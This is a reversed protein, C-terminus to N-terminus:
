FKHSRCLGFPAKAPTVVDSKWSTTVAAEVLSLPRLVPKLTGPSLLPAFHLARLAAGLVKKWFPFTCPAILPPIRFACAPQPIVSSGAQAPAGEANLPLHYLWVCPSEGWGAWNATGYIAHVSRLSSGCWQTAWEGLVAHKYVIVIYVACVTHTHICEDAIQFCDM